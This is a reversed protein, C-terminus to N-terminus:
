VEQFIGYGTEAGAVAVSHEEVTKMDEFRASTQETEERSVRGIGETECGAGCGTEAVVGGVSVFAVYFADIDPCGQDGDAAHEYALM